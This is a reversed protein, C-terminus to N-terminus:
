APWRAAIQRALGLAPYVPAGHRQMADAAASDFCVEPDQALVAGGGDRVALIAPVLQADAGSLVIVMSDAASVSALLNALTGSGMVLNGANAQASFGAPLLTVKGGEPTGGQQALVVPLKSIKALQEVLREHKGVELHQYLLVPVALSEPLSSLLQRVADPGGLGALIVVAGLGTALAPAAELQAQNEMPALALNSFDFSPAAAPAVVAVAEIMEEDAVQLSQAAAHDRKDFAELQAALYHAGFRLNM